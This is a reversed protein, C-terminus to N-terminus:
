EQTDLSWDSLIVCFGLSSPLLLNSSHCLLGVIDDEGLVYKDYGLIQMIMIFDGVEDEFAKFLSTLHLMCVTSYCSASM